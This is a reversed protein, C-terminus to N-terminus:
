GATPKWGRGSKGLGGLGTQGNLGTQGRKWDAAGVAAEGGAAAEAATAAAHGKAPCGHGLSAKPLGGLGWGRQLGPTVEGFSPEPFAEGGRLITVTEPTFSKVPTSSHFSSKIVQPRAKAKSLTQKSTQGKQNGAEVKMRMELGAQKPERCQGIEMGGDCGKTTSRSKADLELGPWNGTVLIM